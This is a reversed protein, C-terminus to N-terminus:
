GCMGIKSAFVGMDVAAPQTEIGVPQDIADGIIEVRRLGIRSQYPNCLPPSSFTAARQRYEIAHVLREVPDVPQGKIGIEGETLLPEIPRDEIFAIEGDCRIVRGACEVLQCRHDSSGIARREAFRGAAQQLGKLLM